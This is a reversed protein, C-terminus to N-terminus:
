SKYCHIIRALCFRQGLSCSVSRIIGSLVSLCLALASRSSTILIEAPRAFVQGGKNGQCYELIRKLSSNCNWRGDMVNLCFQPSRHSLSQICANAKCSAKLCYLFISIKLLVCSCPLFSEKMQLHLDASWAQGLVNKKRGFCRLASYSSILCHCCM